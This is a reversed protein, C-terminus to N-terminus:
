NWKLRLRRKRVKDRQRGQFAKGMMVRMRNEERRKEETDMRVRMVEMVRGRDEKKGM